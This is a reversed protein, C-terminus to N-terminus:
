KDGYETAYWDIYEELLTYIEAPTKQEADVVDSYGTFDGHEDPKVTHIFVEFWNNDDIRIKDDENTRQQAILDALEKPYNSPYKYVEWGSIDEDDVPGNYDEGYCKPNFFLKIEGQVELTAIYGNKTLTALVTGSEIQLSDVIKTTDYDSNLHFIIDGNSSGCEYRPAIDSRPEYEYSYSIVCYEYTNSLYDSIADTNEIESIDTSITEIPITIESPLNLESQNIVEGNDETDWVIDTIKLYLKKGM